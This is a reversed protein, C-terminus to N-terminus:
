KTAWEPYDGRDTVIQYGIHKMRNELCAHCEAAEEGTCIKGDYLLYKGRVAKPSLSPMIVNAGAEVGLERGRPHITGLATTAPLLVKPFMLRLISLCYLTMELTGDPYDRFPTDQHHIFPGIGIMHPKLESLYMLDEVLNEDEQYPSGVMFGAGVQFGIEKLDLLCRKRNKLSLSEPHLKRYHSESATEHRLLYRDAGARYFDEYINRPREGVSLTIACDPYTQKIKQVLECLEDDSFGPDEGGQLVFTRFGFGYGLRCCALIEEPTLRYRDAHHNSRRIGCYYCDNKCYNSFEILGRVYIQNGYTERATEQAFKRLVEADEPNRKQILELYEEATLRHEKHLKEILPLLTGMYVGFNLFYKSSYKLM